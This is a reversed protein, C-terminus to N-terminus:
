SIELSVVFDAVICLFLDCYTSTCYISWLVVSLPCLVVAASAVAVSLFSVVARTVENNGTQNDLM